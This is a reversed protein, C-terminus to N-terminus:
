GLFAPFGLLGVFSPFGLFGRLLSPLPEEEEPLYELNFVVVGLLGIPILM